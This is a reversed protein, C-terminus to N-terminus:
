CLHLGLRSDLQQQLFGMKFTTMIRPYHGIVGDILAIVLTSQMLFIRFSVKQFGFMDLLSPIPFTFKPKSRSQYDIALLMYKIERKRDGDDSTSKILITIKILPMAGSSFFTPMDINSIILCFEWWMSQSDTIILQAM